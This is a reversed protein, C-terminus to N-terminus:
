LPSWYINTYRPTAVDGGSKKREVTAGARAKSTATAQMYAPLQGESDYTLRGSGAPRSMSQVSSSGQNLVGTSRSHTLTRKELKRGLQPTASISVPRGGRSPGRSVKSSNTTPLRASSSLETRPSRRPVVVEGTPSTKRVAGSAGAVGAKIDLLTSSRLPSPSRNTVPTPSRIGLGAKIPSSSIKVTDPGSEQPPHIVSMETLSSNMPIRSTLDVEM